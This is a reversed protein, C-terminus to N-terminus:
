IGLDRSKFSYKFYQMRVSFQPFLPNIDIFTFGPLKGFPMESYNCIMAFYQLDAAVFVLKAHSKYQSAHKAM